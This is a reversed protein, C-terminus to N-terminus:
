AGYERFIQHKFIKTTIVEGDMNLEKVAKRVTTSYVATAQNFIIHNALLYSLGFDGQNLVVDSSGLQHDSLWQIFPQAYAQLSELEAPVNSWKQQLDSPLSVFESVGWNQRADQIQEDTLQHSFLLFM